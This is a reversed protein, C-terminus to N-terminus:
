TGKNEGPAPLELANRLGAVMHECVVRGPHGTPIQEAQKTYAALYHDLLRLKGELVQNRESLARVLDDASTDPMAPSRGFARAQQVLRSMGFMRRPPANPYDNSM